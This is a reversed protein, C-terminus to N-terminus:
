ASRCTNPRARLGLRPDPAEVRADAGARAPPGARRGPGLTAGADRAARARCGRRARRGRRPLPGRRLHEDVLRRRRAAGAPRDAAPVPRRHRLRQGLRLARGRVHEPRRRGRRRPPHGRRRGKLAEAVRRRTASTASSSSSRPPRATRADEDGHVQEILSDLVRVRYGRQLLARAVYRGIFGAGGTILVTEALAQRGNGRGSQSRTHATRTSRVEHWRGTLGTAPQRAAIGAQGIKAARRVGRPDPNTGSRLTAASACM